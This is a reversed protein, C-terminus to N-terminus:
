DNNKASHGRQVPLVLLLPALRHTFCADFCVESVAAEQSLSGAIQSIWTEAIFPEFLKCLTHWSTSAGVAHGMGQEMHSGISVAWDRRTTVRALSPM